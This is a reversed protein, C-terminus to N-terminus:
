FARTALQVEVGGLFARQASNIASLLAAQGASRSCSEADAVIRISLTRLIHEADAYSINRWRALGIALRHARDPTIPAVM